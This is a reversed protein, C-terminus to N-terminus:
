RNKNVRFIKKKLLAHKSDNNVLLRDRGIKSICIDRLYLWRMHDTKSLRLVTICSKLHIRDYTKDPFASYYLIKKM